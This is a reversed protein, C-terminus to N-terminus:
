DAAAAESTCRQNTPHFLPLCLFFFFVLCIITPPRYLSSEMYM